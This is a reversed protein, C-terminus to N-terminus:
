LLNVIKNGGFKKVVAKKKKVFMDILDSVTANNIEFHRAINSFNVFERRKIFSILEKENPMGRRRYWEEKKDVTREKYLKKIEFDFFECTEKVAESLELAVLITRLRKKNLGSKILAMNYKALQTIVKTDPKKKLEVIVYNGKKDKCFLDIVGTNVRKQREILSLGSEVRNLNKELIDEWEKEKM